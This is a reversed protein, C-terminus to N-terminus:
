KSRAEIIKQRIRSTFDKPLREPPVNKNILLRSAASEKFPDKKSLLYSMDISDLEAVDSNTDKESM